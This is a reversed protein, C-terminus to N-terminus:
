KEEETQRYAVWADACEDWADARVKAYHQALWRDFARAHDHESMSPDDETPQPARRFGHAQIEGAIEMPWDDCIERITIPRSSHPGTDEYDIVINGVVTALEQVELEDREDETPQPARSAQWEAGAVFANRQMESEANQWRADLESYDPEPDEDVPPCVWDPWRREAEERAEKQAESTM